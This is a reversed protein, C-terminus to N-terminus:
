ISVGKKTRTKKKSMEMDDVPKQKQKMDKSDAPKQAQYQDISEKQVRKLQGDYLNVTKYQPNAEMFMKQTGGNSEMTVAQINGKQLSQMLAKEKEGDGLEAVAFRSVAAKLDYGYNEHYQKVEHNNNKDRNQFDLQIWARYPEGAKNSLEKHVARGELLNYAEKATVGKGNSLYFQQDVKEGNSKTLCAQYSNFFYMDSNDSKRFNLTAEFPKKNIESSFNLQFSERGEGLHKQLPEHLKEGFGMYKLHDKLYDYNQENMIKTKLNNLLQEKEIHDILNDTFANGDRSYLSNADPDIKIKRFLDQISDAYMVSFQDFDSINNTAFKKAEEGTKFFYLDKKDIYYLSNNYAIWNENRDIASQILNLVEDSIIQGTKM